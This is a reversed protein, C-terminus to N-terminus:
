KLTSSEASTTPTRASKTELPRTGPLDVPSTLAARRYPVIGQEALYRLLANAKPTLHM